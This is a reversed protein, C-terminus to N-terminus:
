KVIYIDEDSEQFYYQERAFMELTDLNSKIQNIKERSEIISNKLFLEQKKQNNLTQNTKILHFLNNRDTFCIIVLFVITVITWKNILFKFFPHNNRLEQIKNSLQRM